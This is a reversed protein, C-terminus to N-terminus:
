HGGRKYGGGGGGLKTLSTIAVHYKSILRSHRVRKEVYRDNTKRGQNMEIIKTNCKSQNNLQVYM